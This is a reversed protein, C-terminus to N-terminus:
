RDGSPEHCPTRSRGRIGAASLARVDASMEAALRLRTEPAMARYAALQRERAELSTDLPRRMGSSYRRQAGAMPAEGVRRRACKWYVRDTGNM